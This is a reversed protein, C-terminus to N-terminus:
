PPAQTSERLVLKPAVLIQQAPLDKNKLMETMMLTARYSYEYPSWELATLSPTIGSAFEGFGVTVVSMDQPVRYGRQTIAKMCGPATLHNAVVIIIATLQPNEELLTDAAAFSDEIRLETERYYAQLGYKQLAREYGEFAHVAGAMKTVRWHQPYTLLGIERHGLGVLYDFALLMGTESDLDIYTLGELNACRGIMVFPCDNERLLNVRWDDVYVQLLIMGDVQNSRYMNLLTDPTLQSLLFNLFYDQEGAAAAAGVIYPTAVISSLLYPSEVPYHLALTRSAGGRLRQAQTHPVYGLKKIAENVRDRTEDAVYEKNNLIRSVTPVSVGAVEAVDAITVRPNITKSNRKPM